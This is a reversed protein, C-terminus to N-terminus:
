SLWKVLRLIGMKAGQRHASLEESRGASREAYFRYAERLIEDNTRTPRWGLSAKIRATDFIFNSSILRSHYPGLPSLKLRHLLGLSSITLREPLRAFRSKSGAEDIVAGYVERLTKVNDSGVHYVHSGPSRAALLCAEALDLAYIFQYRNSGDGVLYVKRGEKVFEFFIALLGLRGASVITPCRLADADLRGAREALAKEGALKSRGYDCIPCTPENETVLHDYGKGFVCISSTYVLKRNGEEICIDALNGTGGVNSDWLDKPDPMEHGMLAACHFVAEFPGHSRFVQRIQDPFRLDAHAYTVRPDPEPDDLRDLSTVKVGQDCLYRALVGGFYGAAGTVLATNPVPALPLLPKGASRSAAETPRSSDGASRNGEDASRASDNAPGPSDGAPRASYEVAQSGRDNPPERFTM